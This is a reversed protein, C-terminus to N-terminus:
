LVIGEKKIEKVLAFKNKNFEDATLYHLQIKKKCKKELKSAIEEAKFEQKTDKKKSILAIDVDSSISATHKAYSGFLIMKEFKTKEMVSSSLDFLILWLQYSIERLLSQEKKLISLIAQVEPSSLNLRLSRKEKILVREKLLRNLSSDIGLNSLRTLEAIIKRNLAKGPALSFLKIIKMSSKYSLITTIM